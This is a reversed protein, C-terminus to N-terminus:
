VHFSADDRKQQREADGRHRSNEDKLDQAGPSQGIGESVPVEARPHEVDGDEDEPFTELANEHEGRHRRVHAARFATELPRNGRACGLSRNPWIIRQVMSDGVGSQM